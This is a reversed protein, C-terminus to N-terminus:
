NQSQRYNDFRIISSHLFLEYYAEVGFLALLDIHLDLLFILLDRFPFDLGPAGLLVVLEEMQVILM